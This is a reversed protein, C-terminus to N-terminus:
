ALVACGIQSGTVTTMIDSTALLGVLAYNADVVPVRSIGRDIMLQAAERVTNSPGITAPRASMVSAVDCDLM